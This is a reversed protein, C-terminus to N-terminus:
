GGRLKHGLDRRSFARVDNLIRQPARDTAFRQALGLCYQAAAQSATRYREAEEPSQWPQLSFAVFLQRRLAAAARGRDMGQHSLMLWAVVFKDVEAQLELELATVPAGLEYRWALFLLHSLGELAICFSALNGSHLRAMPDDQELQAVVRPDIYLSMELADGGDRVFLQEPLHSRAGALTRRLQDDVLFAAVDLDLQLDHLAQLEGALRTLLPM